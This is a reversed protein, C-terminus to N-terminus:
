RQHTHVVYLDCGAESAVTRAISGLMRAPGQVRKNGVVIVEAGVREAEHVLALGPTGEIARSKVTLGPVKQGVREAVTAAIHEAEDAFRAILKDYASRTVTHENKGHLSQVTENTKVTFASLIHLEAGLATALTAAKEAAILATASGDVGSLVIKAM